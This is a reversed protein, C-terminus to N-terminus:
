TYAYHETNVGKCNRDGEDKEKQALILFRQFERQQSKAAALSDALTVHYRSLTEEGKRCLWSLIQRCAFIPSNGNDIRADDDVVGDCNENNSAPPTPPSPLHKELQAKRRECVRALRGVSRQVEAYLASCREMTERADANDGGLRTKANSVEQLIRPGEALLGMLDPHCSSGNYLKDLDELASQIQLSDSPPSGSAMKSRVSSIVQYLIKSQQRCSSLFPEVIKRFAIWDHQNHAIPGGCCGLSLASALRERLQGISTIVDCSRGSLRLPTEPASGGESWIIVDDICKQQRDHFHCLLQEILGFANSYQDPRGVILLILGNKAASKRPVTQYYTVLQSLHSVPPLHSRLLSLEAVVMARGRHRCGPLYVGCDMVLPNLSEVSLPEATLRGATTNMAMPATEAVLNKPM